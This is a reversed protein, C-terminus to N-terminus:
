QRRRLAPPLQVQDLFPLLKARKGSEREVLRGSLASVQMMTEARERLADLEPPNAEAVVNDLWRTADEVARDSIDATRAFLTQLPSREDALQRAITGSELNFVLHDVVFIGWPVDARLAGLLTRLAGTASPLQERVETLARQARIVLQHRDHADRILDAKVDLDETAAAVALVCDRAVSQSEIVVAVLFLAEPKLNSYDVEPRLMTLARSLGPERRIYGKRELTQLMRHAGSASGLNCAISLERSTPPFRHEAIYHDLYTLVERQRPTLPQPSPAEQAV